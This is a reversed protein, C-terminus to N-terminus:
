RQPLGVEEASGPGLVSKGKMEAPQAIGYLALLTPAIDMLAPSDLVIPRNSLLVGPVQRYDMCHDGSWADLNDEFVVGPVAGLVTGWGSRYGRNYGILLDPADSTYPGSYTESALDVRTIAPEGSV